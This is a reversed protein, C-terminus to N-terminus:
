NENWGGLLFFLEFVFVEMLGSVNSFSVSFATSGGGIPINELTPAPGAPWVISTPLLPWTDASPLTPWNQIPVPPLTVPWSSGNKMKLTIGLEGTAFYAVALHRLLKENMLRGMSLLPTSVQGVIQTGLADLGTTWNWVAIRRNGNSDIQGLVAGKINSSSIQYAAFDTPPLHWTAWRYVYQEQGLGFMNKDMPDPPSVVFAYDLNVGGMSVYFIVINEPEYWVACGMEISSEPLQNFNNQVQQSIRSTQLMGQSAALSVLSYIGDPGQFLLDNGVNVITRHYGYMGRFAVSVAFNNYSTGSLVFLAGYKPGKFIWVDSGFSGIGTIIDRGGEVQVNGADDPATWNSPNDVACWFLMSPDGGFNGAAYIRNNHALFYACPVLNYAGGTITLDSLTTGDYIYNHDTGNGFVVKKQLVAFNVPLGIHYKATDVTPPATTPAIAGTDIWTVLTTNALLGLSGSVRGYVNYSTAGPIETWSLVNQGTATTTITGIPSPLTEGQGNLATIEYAYPGAVLTGASSSYVITPPTNPASVSIQEWTTTGSNYQWVIGGQVALLYESQGDVWFDFLGDIPDASPFDPGLWQHGPRLAFSARTTFYVNLAKQFGLVQPSIPPLRTDLGFKGFDLTISKMLNPM